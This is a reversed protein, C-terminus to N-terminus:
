HNDHLELFIPHISKPYKGKYHSVQYPSLLNWRRYSSNLSFILFTGKKRTTFCQFMYGDSIMSAWEKSCQTFEGQNFSSQYLTVSTLFWYCVAWYFYTSLLSLYISGCCECSIWWCGLGKWIGISVPFYFAHMYHLIILEWSTDPSLSSIRM